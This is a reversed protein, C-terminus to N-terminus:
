SLKGTFLADALCAPQNQACTVTISLSDNAQVAVPTKLHDDSPGANLKALTTDLVTHKAHPTTVDVAVTGSQSGVGPSSLILDTLQFSHGAPVTWHVTSRTGPAVVADLDGYYDTTHTSKAVLLGSIKLSAQCAAQNVNCTGNLILKQGAGLVAPTGLTATFPKSGLQGYTSNLINRQTNGAQVQVRVQGSVSKSTSTMTFSSMEFNDASPVVWNVSSFTGPSVTISLTKSFNGLVVRAPAHGAGTAAVAATATAATAGGAIALATAGLVLRRGAARAKTASM